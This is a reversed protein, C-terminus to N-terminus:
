QCDLGEFELIWGDGVKKPTYDYHCGGIVAGNRYGGANFLSVAVPTRFLNAHAPDENFYKDIRVGLVRVDERNIAEESVHVFTYGALSPRYAKPWPVGYDGDSVLAVRADGHTGYFDRDDKFRPNTLVDQLVADLIQEKDSKAMKAAEPRTPGRHDEDQGNDVCGALCIVMGSAICLRM